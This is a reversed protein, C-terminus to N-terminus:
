EKALVFNSLDSRLSELREFEENLLRRDHLAATHKHWAQLVDKAIADRLLIEHVPIAESHAYLARLIDETAVTVQIYTQNM